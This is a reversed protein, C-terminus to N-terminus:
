VCLPKQRENLVRGFFAGFGNRAFAIGVTLGRVESRDGAAVAM